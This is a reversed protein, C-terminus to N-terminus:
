SGQLTDRRLKLEAIERELQQQKSQFDSILQQSDFLSSELTEKEDKLRAIQDSFQRADREM